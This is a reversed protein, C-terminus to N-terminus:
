NSSCDIRFDTANLKVFWNREQNEFIIYNRNITCTLLLKPRINSLLYLVLDGNVKDDGCVEFDGYNNFVEHRLSGTVVFMRAFFDFALYSDPFSQVASTGNGFSHELRNINKILLVWNLGIAQDFQEQLKSPGWFKSILGM